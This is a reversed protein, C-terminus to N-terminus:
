RQISTDNMMAYFCEEPIPRHVGDYNSVSTLAEIINTEINKAVCSNVDSIRSNMINKNIVGEDLMDQIFKPHADVTEQFHPSALLSDINEVRRHDLQEMLIVKSFRSLFVKLTEYKKKLDNELEKKSKEYSVKKAKSQDTGNSNSEYYEYPHHGQKLYDLNDFPIEALKQHNVPVGTCIKSVDKINLALIKDIETIDVPEFGTNYGLTNFCDLYSIESSSQDATKSSSYTLHDYDRMVRLGREAAFDIVLADKNPNSSARFAMQLWQSLSEGTNLFLVTDWPATVGLVNASVTFCITHSYRKLHGNIEKHGKRSEGHCSLPYYICDSKEIYDCILDCAKISPLACYIHKSNVLSYQSALLKPNKGIILHENIFAMVLAPYKFDTKDENLDFLNTISDPADPHYQKFETDYKAISLNIKSYPLNNEICYKVNNYYTWVFRNTDSYLEIYDFATGSVDIMYSQEFRRRIKSIEEAKGGVHVEDFVLLDVSIDDFLSLKSVLNQATTFLLVQKGRKRCEKVKDMWLTNKGTPIRIYEINEFTDFNETDEQWSQEPSKIRSIALSVGFNNDVIAQNCMVVKGTRMLACLLMSKFGQSFANNVKSQFIRQPYRLNLEIREKKGGFEDRVLKEIEKVLLNLDKISNLQFSENNGRNPNYKVISLVDIKPHLRKDLHSGQMPIEFWITTHKHGQVTWDAILKTYERDKHRLEKRHGETQGYFFVGTNFNFFIYHWVKGNTMLNM